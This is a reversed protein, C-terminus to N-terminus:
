KIVVNETYVDKDNFIKVIYSGMALHAVDFAIASSGSGSLLVRGQIDMIAVTYDENDESNFTVNLVDSAPNPYVSIDKLDVEELGVVAVTVLSADSAGFNTASESIVVAGNHDIINYYGVTGSSLGDGFYDYVTLSYCTIWPFYVQWSYSTNNALPNTPDTPANSNGTGFNGQVGENGESWILNSNMDRIEIYTEAAADDTTLEIIVFNNTPAAINVAFPVTGSNDSTVDPVGNPDSVTVNMVNSSLASFSIPDLDFTRTQGPNIPNAVDNFTYVQSTGGNM